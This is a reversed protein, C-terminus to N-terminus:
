KSHREMRRKRGLSLQLVKLETPIVLTDESRHIVGIGPAEFVERAHPSVELLVTLWFSRSNHGLFALPGCARVATSSM